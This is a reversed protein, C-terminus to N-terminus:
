TDVEVGVKLGLATEVKLPNAKSWSFDLSKMNWSIDQLPLVLKAMTNKSILTEKTQKQLICKALNVKFYQIALKIKSTTKSTM